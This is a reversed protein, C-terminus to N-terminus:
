SFRLGSGRPLGGRLTRPARRGDLIKSLSPRGRPLGAELAATATTRRRHLLKVHALLHLVSASESLPPCPQQSSSHIRSDPVGFPPLTSTIIFTDDSHSISQRRFAATALRRSTQLLFMADEMLGLHYCAQGLILYRWGAEGECGSHLGAVVKRKLDSISFCLFAREDEEGSPLIKARERGDISSVGSGSSSLSSSSSDDGAVASLRYSPIYDHLM